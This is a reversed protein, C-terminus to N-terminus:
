QGVGATRNLWYFPLRTSHAVAVIWITDGRVVFAFYHDFNPFNARRIEVDESNFEPVIPFQLPNSNIRSVVSQHDTLFRRQVNTGARLRYYHAAALLEQRADPHFLIRM